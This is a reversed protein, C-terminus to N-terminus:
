QKSKRMAKLTRKHIACNGMISYHAIESHLNTDFVTCLYSFFSLSM